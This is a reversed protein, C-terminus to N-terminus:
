MVLSRIYSISFHFIVSFYSDPLFNIVKLFHWWICVQRIQDCHLWSMEKKRKTVSKKKNKKEASGSPGPMHAINRVKTENRSTKTVNGKENHTVTLTLQTLGVLPNSLLKAGAWRFYIALLTIRLILFRLIVM